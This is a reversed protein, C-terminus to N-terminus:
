RFQHFNKSPKQKKAWEGWGNNLDDITINCENKAEVRGCRSCEREDWAHLAIGFGEHATDWQLKWLGFAHLEGLQQCHCRECTREAECGDDHLLRWGGWAHESRKQTRSCAQCTRLQSCTDQSTHEWSGWAHGKWVCMIANRISRMNNCWHLLRVDQPEDAVVLRGNFGSTRHRKSLAANRGRGSTNPFPRPLRAPIAAWAVM